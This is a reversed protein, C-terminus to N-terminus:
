KAEEAGDKEQEDAAYMRKRARWVQEGTDTMSAGNPAQEPLDHWSNQAAAAASLLQGGPGDEADREGNINPWQGPRGAPATVQGTVIHAM